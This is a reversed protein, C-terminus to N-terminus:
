PATRRKGQLAEVDELECLQSLKHVLIELKSGTEIGQFHALPLHFEGHGGVHRVLDDVVVFVADGFHVKCIQEERKPRSVDLSARVAANSAPHDQLFLEVVRTSVRGSLDLEVFQLNRRPNLARRLDNVSGM